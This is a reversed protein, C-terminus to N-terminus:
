HLVDTRVYAYRYSLQTGLRGYRNRAFWLTRLNGRWICRSVLPRQWEQLPEATVIVKDFRPMTIGDGTRRQALAALMNPYAFISEPRHRNLESLFDDMEERRLTLLM